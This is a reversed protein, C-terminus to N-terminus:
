SGDNVISAYDEAYQLRYLTRYPGDGKVLEDHAGSEVVQGHDLVLIRDANRITSLRHAIVLSTQRQMLREVAEQILSETETDVNATAEDLILVDPSHALARAFSILQGEGSSLNAGREAVHHDFGAAYRRAITYANSANVAEEFAEEEIDRGLTVNDRVSGDFLFADQLVVAFRRRLPRLQYDRIDVGDILIRGRQVDYLRMLLNIITSKGAGTHGVLALKEGSEVRFSIDRLIWDEARADYAFWVNEFEITFPGEPPPQTGDDDVSEDTDLLGFIRESSAMASQLLNYKQALDRIPIFFNNMYEIFAVLVGLTVVGELVQGSGYWIILGITVSGITEVIAYLSADWRIARVYADRYDRNISQYERASVRERVFLQIVSMGGISEQLHAYLRAVNVRIERYAKRLLYRFVATIVILIPLVALSVLALRWDLILLIMVTGFLTFLDGLMTIMGSSLAEALSEVDTTMRTMLRGVPNKHFFSVALSQVHDFVAQRLDRLARQGALQMLWFQLFQVLSAGLVALGFAVLVVWFGELTQPVLFDDIAIQLLWPRVLQLASIVPLLLLCFIFIGSYPRMYGWLRGILVRDSIEGLAEETFASGIKQRPIEQSESAESDPNLDSM